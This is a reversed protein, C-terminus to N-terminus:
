NCSSQYRSISQASTNDVFNRVIVGERTLNRLLLNFWQVNANTVAVPEGAEEYFLDDIIMDFKKGRYAKLWEVADAEILAISKDKLKFFRRAIDIHVPNLEIGVIKEPRVFQKLLQIAAGGGVGLVLVRQVQAQPLFFAPLM